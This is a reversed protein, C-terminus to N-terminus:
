LSNHTLLGFGCFLLLLFCIPWGAASQPVTFISSLSLRLGCSLVGASLCEAFVRSPMTDIWQTANRLRPTPIQLSTTRATAADGAFTTRRSPTPTSKPPGPAPPVALLGTTLISASGPKCWWWVTITSTGVHHTQLTSIFLLLPLLTFKVGLKIWSEVSSPVLSLSILDM